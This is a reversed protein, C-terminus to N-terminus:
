LLPGANGEGVMKRLGCAPLYGAKAPLCCGTVNLSTLKGIVTLSKVLLWM